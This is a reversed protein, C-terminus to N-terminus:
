RPGGASVLPPLDTLTMGFGSGGITPAVVTPGVGSASSAAAAAKPAFTPPLPPAPAPTPVSSSNFIIPAVVTPGVASSSSSAAAAVTRTPAAYDICSVPLYSFRPECWYYWCSTDPCWYCDCGYQSLYHRYTWHSHNRGYYYHGHSFKKADHGRNGTTPRGKNSSSGHQATPKGHSGSHPGAADVTAALALNTVMLAATLMHRKM